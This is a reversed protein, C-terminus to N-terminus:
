AVRRTTVHPEEGRAQEQGDVEVRSALDVAHELDPLEAVVQRALVSGHREDIAAVPPVELRLHRRIEGHELRNGHLTLLQVDHPRAGASSEEPRRSARSMALTVVASRPASSAAPGSASISIIWPPKM